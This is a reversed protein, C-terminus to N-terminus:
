LIGFKVANNFPIAFDNSFTDFNPKSSLENFFFNLLKTNYSTRFFTNLSCASQQALFRYFNLASFCSNFHFDLKEKSRAQCHLLGVFQKADRFIFEIQFRLRYFHLIQLGSQHLDTSFLLVYKNTKTNLVLAVNIVRKFRVAFLNCSYVQLHKHESDFGLNQWKSLDIESWKVKGEYTKNGHANRNKNRDLLYKMDADNRLKSILYNGREEVQELVKTKAYFGDAAWYKVSPLQAMSLKLQKMYEDVRTYEGQEGEQMSLGSPTQHAHVTWAQKNETDIVSILSLELGVEAKQLCSSWFKDLGYTQKGSKPIYSCDIAGIFNRSSMKNLFLVIFLANFNLWDFAKSYNRRYSQEHSKGYRSMNTFNGRGQLAAKVEFIEILFKRFRSKKPVIAELIAKISSM